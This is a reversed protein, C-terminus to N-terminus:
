KVMIFNAGEDIDNLLALFLKKKIQFVPLEMGKAEVYTVQGNKDVTRFDCYYTCITIGNVVLPIKVQKKVEILEGAKLRWDLDAAVRAELKSDYKAGNYDTKKAKYKNKRDSKSLIMVRYEQVPLVSQAEAERKWKEKPQPNFKQIM